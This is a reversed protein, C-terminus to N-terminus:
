RRPRSGRRPSSTTSSRARTPPPSSTSSSASGSSCTSSPRSCATGTSPPSLPTLPTHNPAHGLRPALGRYPMMVDYIQTIFPRCALMYYGGDALAVAADSVANGDWDYDRLCEVSGHEWDPKVGLALEALREMKFALGGFISFWLASFLVPAFFGGLILERVTRGRSIIAMFMGVFPAWSIWWGWYFVTWWDMWVTNTSDFLSQFASCELSHAACTGWTGVM